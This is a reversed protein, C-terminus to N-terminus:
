RAPQRVRTTLEAEAAAVNRIAQVVSDPNLSMSDIGWSVLLRAMEPHDSPAQGCIGSHIGNRRCGTIALRIMKLVGPDEDDYDFAVLQSDRDVGLTLQTLDNSGISFGDFRQAFADVQVVNNPIECMAYVQLGDEGRRLGLEAMRALVLDAEPVRRVFPVMVIVNTLGMETRVRHLARCELAFGEAYAPHAYRSAGRFGIMPNAEVPEFDTGGLLGAYENTKFDSLRVV